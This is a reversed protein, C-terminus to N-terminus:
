IDPLKQVSNAPHQNNIDTDSHGVTLRVSSFDFFRRGRLPEKLESFRDFDCPNMDPSYPPNSLIEWQWLQLLLFRCQKICSLTHQCAVRYTSQKSIFTSTQVAYDSGSPTTSIAITTQKSLKDQLYLM